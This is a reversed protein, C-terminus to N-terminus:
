QAGRALRAVCTGLRCVRDGDCDDDLWCTPAPPHPLCTDAACTLHKPCPRRSDCLTGLRTPSRTRKCIRRERREHDYRCRWGGADGHPLDPSLDTCVRESPTAHARIDCLWGADVPGAVVGAAPVGRRCVVVGDLDVCEWEGDDPM